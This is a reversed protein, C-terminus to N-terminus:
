SVSSAAICCAMPLISASSDTTSGAWKIRISVSYLCPPFVHGQVAIQCEVCHADYFGGCEGTHRPDAPSVFRCRILCRDVRHACAQVPKRDGAADYDALPSRSSAGMSNMPSATPVPWPGFTSM